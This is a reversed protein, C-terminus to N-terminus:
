LSKWMNSLLLSRRGQSAQSIRYSNTPIESFWSFHYSSDQLGEGNFRLNQHEFIMKFANSVLSKAEQCYTRRVHAKLSAEHVFSKKCKDCIYPGCNSQMEKKRVPTRQKKDENSPYSKDQTVTHTTLSSNQAIENPIRSAPSNSSQVHSTIRVFRQQDQRAQYASPIGSNSDIETNPLEEKILFIQTASSQTAIPVAPNSTIIEQSTNPTRSEM